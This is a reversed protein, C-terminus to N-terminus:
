TRPVCGLWDACRRYLLGLPRFCTNVLVTLEYKEHEERGFMNVQPTVLVLWLVWFPAHHGLNGGYSETCMKAPVGEGELGHWFYGVM